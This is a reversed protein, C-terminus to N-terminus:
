WMRIPEFQQVYLKDLKWNSIFRLECSNEFTERLKKIPLIDYELKKANEVDIEDELIYIKHCGDYAFFGNSKITRGNVSSEM